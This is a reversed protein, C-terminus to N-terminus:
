KLVYEYIRDRITFVFSISNSNEIEKPVEIYYVNQQKVKTSVVEKLVLDRVQLVGDKEYRINGFKSIFDFLDYVGEISKEKELVGTIKLLTKDYYTTLSPVLYEYSEICEKSICYNYNLKFKDNIEYSSINLKFDSLISENLYLTQGLMTKQRSTLGTLDVYDINVNTSKFGEKDTFNNKNVYSFVMKDNILEKPIQYLLIKEVFENGIKENSYVSGFDFFKDKNEMIPVYYYNGIVLKSTAVDLEKAVSTNNKIKIRLLVYYDDNIFEGKYDNNVLYSELVNLTFGNGSFNTNYGITPTKIFISVAIYAISAVGVISIIINYLLKNEQYSYKLYRIRKRINRMLKNKDVAFEVEFEERDEENIEIEKLDEKFNFKKIDFGVTRIILIPASIFQAVFGLIIFDRVLRITRVDVLSMEMTNLTSSAIAVIIIVFVYILINIFYFLNPKKKLAMVLLLVLSLIIILIPSIYYFAPIFTSQLEQGIVNIMDIAYDNFFDLVLKTRYISYCVLVALILHILRFHKILFAYPKRLIM